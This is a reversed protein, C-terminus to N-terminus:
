AEDLEVIPRTGGSASLREDGERRAIPAIELKEGLQGPHLLGPEFFIFHDALKRRFALFERFFVFGSELVFLEFQQAEDQGSIAVGGLAPLDLETGSRKIM